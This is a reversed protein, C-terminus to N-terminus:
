TPNPGAGPPPSADPIPRATLAPASQDTSVRTLRTHSPQRYRKHSPTPQERAEQRKKKQDPPTAATWSGSHYLCARQIDGQPRQFNSLAIRPCPWDVRHLINGHGGCPAPPPGSAQGRRWAKAVKKGVYLQGSWPALEAFKTM